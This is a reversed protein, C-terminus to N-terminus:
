SPGAAIRRVLLRQPPPCTPRPDVPCFPCEHFQLWLDDSLASQWWRHRANHGQMMRETINM